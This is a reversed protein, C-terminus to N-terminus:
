GNKGEIHGCAAKSVNADLEKRKKVVSIVSDEVEYTREKREGIQIETGYAAGIFINKASGDWEQTMDFNQTHINNKIVKLNESITELEEAKQELIEWDLKIESSVTDSM